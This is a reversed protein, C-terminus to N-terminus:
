RASWAVAAAVQGSPCVDVVVVPAATAGLAELVAAPGGAALLPAADRPTEVTSIPALAERVMGADAARAVRVRVGGLGLGAEALAAGVVRRVAAAPQGGARGLAIAGLRGLEPLAAPEDGLALAVVQEAPTEAPWGQEGLWRRAAADVVDVALVVLGGPGGSALEGHAADMAALGATTGATVTTAPGGLGYAIGVEGAAANSVTAAFLRPSAGAAGHAALREQYAANTAFCGLTTGVAVGLDRRVEVGPPLLRGVAALALAGPREIRLARARVPEPLGRVLDDDGASASTWVIGGRIAAPASV